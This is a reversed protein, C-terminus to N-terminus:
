KVKLLAEVKEVIEKPTHLAKVLYDDAGKKLAEAKDTSDGLNTLMIVPVKKLREDKKLEELVDFGDLKPMMIDLLILDPIFKALKELGEKGNTASQVTFHPHLAFKETYVKIISPDDDILFLAKKSVTPM